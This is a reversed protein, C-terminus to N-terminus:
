HYFRNKKSIHLWISSMTGQWKCCFWWRVSILTWPSAFVVFITLISIVHLSNWPSADNEDISDKTEENEGGEQNSSQHKMSIVSIDESEM